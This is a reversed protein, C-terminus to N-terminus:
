LFEMIVKLAEGAEVAEVFAMRGSFGSTLVGIQSFAVARGTRSGQRL